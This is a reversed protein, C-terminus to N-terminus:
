FLSSKENDFVIYFFKKLYSFNDTTLLLVLRKKNMAKKDVRKKM